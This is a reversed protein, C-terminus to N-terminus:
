PSGCLPLKIIFETGIEGHPTFQLTGGHEKIIAYSTSLGLGVRKDAFKTTFFPDFISDKITDTIGIGNDTISIAIDRDIFKTQIAIAPSREHRVPEVADIANAIVSMFVQNLQSANCDLKPLDGYNRIIQINDLRHHLLLLTNDIGEHLDVVKRASEDLRSFNRLSLVIQNIRESGAKISSLTKPLDTSLFELDIEKNKTQIEESPQSHEQQYLKLLELLDPINSNIYEINGNIFNIPNNMEHAIGAVLQGLSAMKEAHILQAQTNKLEALAQKLQQNSEWLSQEIKQREVINNQLKSVYNRLELQSIVERGLTQLAQLQEPSLNNPTRDIVCLTGLAFGDPSILPTGAYFQINPEHTVLPNNAFREDEKTDPVVLPSSQLIAHACFALDRPTESAELGIKSKFWQRNADVLSILAIPTGCIYAALATLEDFTEEPPTDLINYKELAELRQAENEPIPPKSSMTFIKLIKLSILVIRLCAKPIHRQM